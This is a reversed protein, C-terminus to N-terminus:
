TPDPSPAPATTVHHSLGRQARIRRERRARELAETNRDVADRVAPPHWLHFAVAAFKLNYRGVGTHGLRLTLDSDERGWGEYTEDYGDVRLLDERWFALHCGRIREVTDRTGRVWSALWPAYWANLRGQVGRSWPRLTTVAEATGGALIARTRDPSLLARSGQVFRGRQAVRAHAALAMPHLLIDGDIQVIYDGRAQAVGRNRIAAARFGEDPHWVHYLPVPFRRAERAILARTDDRSGDDAIIVELPHHTQRRIADLVCTLAEPWNYTSVLLSITPTTRM